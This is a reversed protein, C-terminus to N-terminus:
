GETGPVSIISGTHPESQFICFLYAKLHWSTIKLSSIKPSVIAELIDSDQEFHLYNYCFSDKRQINDKILPSLYTELFLNEGMSTHGNGKHQFVFTQVAFLIVFQDLIMSLFQLYRCSQMTLTKLMSPSIIQPKGFQCSVQYVTFEQSYSLKVILCAPNKPQEPLPKLKTQIITCTKIKLIEGSWQSKSLQLHKTLHFSHSIM